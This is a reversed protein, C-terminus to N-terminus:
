LQDLEENLKQLKCEYHNILVEKADGPLVKAANGTHKNRTMVHEISNDKLHILIGKYYDIDDLLVRAKQATEKQM